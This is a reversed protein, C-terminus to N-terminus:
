CISYFVTGCLLVALLNPLFVDLRFVGTLLNRNSSLLHQERRVDDGLAM